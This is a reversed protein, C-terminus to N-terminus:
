GSDFEGLSEVTADAPLNMLQDLGHHKQLSILRVGPLRSLPAIESLAFSRGRDVRGEPNGQWAIGIKFGAEGIFQKWRGILDEEPKLYPVQNPISGLDIGLRLPLSM